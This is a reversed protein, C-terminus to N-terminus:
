VHRLLHRSTSGTTRIRRRVPAKRRLPIDSCTRCLSCRACYQRAPASHAPSSSLRSPTDGSCGKEPASCSAPRRAVTSPAPWGVPGRYPHHYTRLPSRRLRFRPPHFRLLTRSHPLPLLCRPPPHWPGPCAGTREQSALARHRHRGRHLPCGRGSTDHWSRRWPHTAHELHTERGMTKLCLSRASPM